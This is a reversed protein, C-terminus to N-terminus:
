EGTGPDARCLDLLQEVRDVARHEGLEGLTARRKDADEECPEHDRGVPWPHELEVAPEAIGLRLREQRAELSVKELDDGGRGRAIQRAGVDRDCVSGGDGDHESAPLIGRAVVDAGRDVPDGFGFLFSCEDKVGPRGTLAIAEDRVPAPNEVYRADAVADNSCALKGVARAIADGKGVHAIALVDRSHCM